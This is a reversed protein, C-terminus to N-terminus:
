IYRVGDVVEGSAPVPKAAGAAIAQLRCTPCTVKTAINTEERGRDGFHARADEGDLPEPPEGYHPCNSGEAWHVFTRGRPAQNMTIRLRPKKVGPRNTPRPPM